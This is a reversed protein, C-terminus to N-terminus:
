CQLFSTFSGHLPCYLVRMRIKVWCLCIFCAWMQWFTGELIRLHAMKAMKLNKWLLSFVTYFLWWSFSFLCYQCLGSFILSFRSLCNYRFAIRNLFVCIRIRKSGLLYYVWFWIGVINTIMTSSMEQSKISNLRQCLLSYM